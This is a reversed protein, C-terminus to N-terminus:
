ESAGDFVFGLREFQVKMQELGRKVFLLDAGHLILSAGMDLLPQVNEPGFAVTGFRKGAALTERCVTRMAESVPGNDFQGPLGCLVSYDCPGFFFVM